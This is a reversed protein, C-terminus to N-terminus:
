AASTLRPWRQNAMVTVAGCLAVLVVALPVARGAADAAAPSAGAARRAFLLPENIISRMWSTPRSPRRAGILIKKEAAVLALGAVHYAEDLRAYSQMDVIQMTLRAAACILVLLM